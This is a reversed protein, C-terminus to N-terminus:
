IFLKDKIEKIEEFQLETVKECKRWLYNGAKEDHRVLIRTCQDDFCKKCHLRYLVGFGFDIEDKGNADLWTALDIEKQHTNEKSAQTTV